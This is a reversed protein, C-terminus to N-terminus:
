STPLSKVLNKCCLIHKLYIVLTKKSKKEHEEPTTLLIIHYFSVPKDEEPILDDWYGNEKAHAIIKTGQKNFGVSIFGNYYGPILFERKEDSFINKIILHNEQIFSLSVYYTHPVHEKRKQSMQLQAYHSGNRSFTIHSIANMNEKSLEALKTSERKTKSQIDFITVKPNSCLKELSIVKSCDVSYTRLTGSSSSGTAIDPFKDNNEHKEVLLTHENSITGNTRTRAIFENDSEINNFTLYSAIQDHIERPLLALCCIEEVEMANITFITCIMLFVTRKNTMLQQGQINIPKNKSLLIDFCYSQYIMLFKILQDLDEKNTLSINEFYELIQIIHRIM